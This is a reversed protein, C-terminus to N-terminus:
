LMAPSTRYAKVQAHRAVVQDARESPHKWEFLRLVVCLIWIRPCWASAPIVSQAWLGYDCDLVQKDGELQPMALGHSRVSATSGRAGGDEGAIIRLYRSGDGKPWAKSSHARCIVLGSNSYRYMEWSKGLLTLM